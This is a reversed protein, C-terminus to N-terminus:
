LMIAKNLIFYLDCAKANHAIAVVKNAWPSPKCLYTVLDGLPDDWFPHKRQGCRV